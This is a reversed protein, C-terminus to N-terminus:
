KTKLLETKLPLKIDEVKCMVVQTWQSKVIKLLSEKVIVLLVILIFPVSLATLDLLTVEHPPRGGDVIFQPIQPVDGFNVEVDSIKSITVNKVSIYSDNDM